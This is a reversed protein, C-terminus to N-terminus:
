KKNAMAALASHINKVASSAVISSWACVATFLPFFFSFLAILDRCCSGSHPRHFHRPEAFGEQLRDLKLTHESSHSPHVAKRKPKTFRNALARCSQSFLHHLRVAREAGICQSKGCPKKPPYHPEETLTFPTGTRDGARHKEPDVPGFCACGTSRRAPHPPHVEFTFLRPPGSITPGTPCRGSRQWEHVTVPSKHTGYMHPALSRPIRARIFHFKIKSRKLNIFNDKLFIVRSKSQTRLVNNQRFTNPIKGHKSNTHPNLPPNKQKLQSLRAKSLYKERQQM